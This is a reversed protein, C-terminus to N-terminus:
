SQIWTDSLGNGTMVDDIPRDSPSILHHGIRILNGSPLDRNWDPHKGREGPRRCGHEKQKATLSAGEGVVASRAIVVEVGVGGAAAGFAPRRQLPRCSVANDFM